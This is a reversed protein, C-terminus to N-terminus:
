ENESLFENCYHSHTKHHQIPHFGKLGKSKIRMLHKQPEVTASEAWSLLKITGNTVPLSALNTYLVPGLDTPRINCLIFLVLM